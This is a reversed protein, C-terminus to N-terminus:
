ATSASPALATAKRPPRAPSLHLADAEQRETMPRIRRVRLDSRRGIRQDLRDLQGDRGLLEPRVAGVEADVVERTLEGRRERQQGRDARPRASDLDPGGDDVHAVLVREVHGLIGARGVDDGAAPELEADAAPRRLLDDVPEAVEAVDRALALGIRVHGAAVGLDEELEEAALSEGFRVRSRHERVRRAEQADLRM